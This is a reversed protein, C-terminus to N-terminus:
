ENVFEEAIYANSMLYLGTYKDHLDACTKSRYFMDFALEPSIGLMRSLEYAVGGVTLSISLDQLQSSNMDLQKYQFQETM